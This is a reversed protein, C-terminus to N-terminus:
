HAPTAPAPSLGATKLFVGEAQWAKELFMRSQARDMLVPAVSYRAIAAHYGESRAAKGFAHELRDMTEDPVGDPALLVFTSDGQGPDSFGRDELSPVGSLGPLQTGSLVMLPRLQGDLIRPLAGSAAADVHGGMLAAETEGPGGFPIFRWRLSPDSAEMMALAIHSPTGLGPVGIRLEGPARRTAELFSDLDKWPADPRTALIPSAQGFIIVPEVDRLPRYPAENRYPVFILANSVCAALQSGDTRSRALEAVASMGAGSPVNRLIIKQGLEKEAEKALARVATDLAGGPSFAIAIQIPRGAGMAPVSVSIVTLFLVALLFAMTHFLSSITKM